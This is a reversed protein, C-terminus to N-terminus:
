PKLLKEYKQKWYLAVEGWNKIQIINVNRKEYREKLVNATGAGYRLDLNKEYGWLHVSDWANCHNCEGNVNKEDMLLALGCDKAPAFHGADMEDFTIPKDCSICKGWKLADRLRIYHSFWYWAIGKEPPSKYRLAQRGSKYNPMGYERMLTNASKTKM